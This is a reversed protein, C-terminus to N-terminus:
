ASSAAQNRRTVTFTACCPPPAWNRVLWAWSGTWSSAPFLFVDLDFLNVLQLRCIYFGNKNEQFRGWRHSTLFTNCMFVGDVSSHQLEECLVDGMTCQLLRPVEENRDGDFIGYCAELSDRFRDVALVSVCLRRRLLVRTVRAGALFSENM